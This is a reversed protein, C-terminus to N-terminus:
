NIRKILELRAGSYKYANEFDGCCKCCLELDAYLEYLISPPIRDGEESVVRTLIAKAGLYDSDTMDLKAAIHGHYLKSSLGDMIPELRMRLAKSDPHPESYPKNSIEALESRCYLYIATENRDFIVERLRDRHESLVPASSDSESLAPCAEIMLRLLFIRDRAAHIYPSHDRALVDAADLQELAEGLRGVSYLEKAREIHAECLLAASEENQASIEQAQCLELIQVYKKRAHLRRMENILQYDLYEKPDGILASIPIRLSEALAVFTPLSPLAAGNEIRSLMNRTIDCGRALEAQTLGLRQRQERINEGLKALVGNIM